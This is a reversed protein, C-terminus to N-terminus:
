IETSKLHKRKALYNDGGIKNVNPTQEIKMM